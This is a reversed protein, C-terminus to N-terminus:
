WLTKYEWINTGGFVKYALQLHPNDQSKSIKILYEYALVCVCM